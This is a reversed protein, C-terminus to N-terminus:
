EGGTGMRQMDLIEQATLTRNFMNVEDIRLNGNANNNHGGVYMLPDRGTPLIGNKSDVEIGDKYIKLQGGAVEADYTVAVHVWVHMPMAKSDQAQNYVRVNHNSATLRYGHIASMWLTHDDSPGHGSMFNNHGGAKPRLLWGAKTYSKPMPQKITVISRPFGNLFQAANKQRWRGKVTFVGSGIAGDYEDKEHGDVEIGYASNVMVAPDNGPLMMYQLVLSPDNQLSTTFGLWRTYRATARAESLVPLLM